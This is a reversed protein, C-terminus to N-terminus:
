SEIMGKARSYFLCSAHGRLHLMGITRDLITTVLSDLTM